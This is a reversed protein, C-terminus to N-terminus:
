LGGLGEYRKSIKPDDPNLNKYKELLSRAEEKNGLSVNVVILNYMAETNQSDIRLAASFYNKAIKFNKKHYFCVGVGVLANANKGNLETAKEFNNKASSLNGRLIYFRGAEYFINDDKPSLLAATQFDSVANKYDGIHGYCKARELYAKASRKDIGILKNMQEIASHCDGKKRLEVALDYLVLDTERIAISKKFHKITEDANKETRYCKGLEWFARWNKPFKSTTYTWLSINNKWVTNQKVTIFSFIILILPAIKLLKKNRHILDGAFLCFGFSPIYLFREAMLDGIPLINSVPILFAFFWLISFTFIPNTKITKYAAFFVAALAIFSLIVFPEFFTQSISIVNSLGWDPNLPYPIFLLKIYYVFVKSMTFIRTPLNENQFFIESGKPTLGGIAFFKIILYAVFVTLYGLINKSLRSKFVFEYLIVFVLFAVATEKSLLGCFFTLLSIIIKERLYFYFALICFFGALLESRGVIGAVVEVHIPHVAFFLGCFFAATNFGNQRYFFTLLYKCILFVLLVNASHFLVNGFHFWFPKGGFFTHTLLYSIVILPRYLKSDQTEYSTSAWYEKAFLQFINKPGKILSNNEVIHIDDFTFKNYLSNFYVSISVLM